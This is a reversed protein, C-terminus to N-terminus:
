VKSCVAFCWINFRPPAFCHLFPFSLCFCACDPAICLMLICGLLCVKKKRTGNGVLPHPTEMRPTAAQLLAARSALSLKKDTLIQQRKAEDSVNAKLTRYEKYMLAVLFPFCFRFVGNLLHHSNSGHPVIIM